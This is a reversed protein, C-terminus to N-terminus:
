DHIFQWVEVELGEDLIDLSVVRAIIHSFVVVEVVEEVSLSSSKVNFLLSLFNFPFSLTSPVLRLSM